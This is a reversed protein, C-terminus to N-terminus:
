DAWVWRVKFTGTLRFESIGQITFGTGADIGSCTLRIPVIAHEATNHDATSDLGMMYAEVGSTGSIGTQGTVTTTAINTGPAAGFDLTLNGTGNAM